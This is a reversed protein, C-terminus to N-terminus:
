IFDIILLKLEAKMVSERMEEDDFIGAYGKLKGRYFSLARKFVNVWSGEVERKYDRLSDSWNVHTFRQISLENLVVGM